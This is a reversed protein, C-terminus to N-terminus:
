WNPADAELVDDVTEDDVIKDVVLLLEVIEERMVRLVVEEAVEIEELREDRELVIVDAVEVLLYVENVFTEQVM